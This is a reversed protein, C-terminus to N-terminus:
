LNLLLPLWCLQSNMAASKWEVSSLHRAAPEEGEEETTMLVQVLPSYATTREVKCADVIQQFPLGSHSMASQLIQIEGKVLTMLTDEPLVSGYLPLVQVTLPALLQPGAAVSRVACGAGAPLRVNLFYGMVDETKAPRNSVTTGIILSSTGSLRSLLLRYVALFVSYTTCANQAAFRRVASALEADIEIRASGGKGSPAAPRQFDYPLQLVKPAPELTEAWWRRQTEAEVGVLWEKQWAAYDAYDIPLPALPTGPANYAAQLDRIFAGMSRCRTPSSAM